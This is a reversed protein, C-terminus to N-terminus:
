KEMVMTAWGRSRRSAVLRLNRYAARLGPVERALIGGMVLRGGPALRPTLEPAIAILVSSLINAAILDFRGGIKELPTSSFRIRGCRNFALNERANRLANPDTDIAMVEGVGMAAMAFALIGSGTGVDLARAVRSGGCLIDELARLTGATSPHHGTGFGFGPQVVVRFRGPDRADSWPPVVLIKRGIRLPKFRRQWMTAWGPDVIARPARSRGDPSLMGAKRMASRLESARAPHLRSFYAELTVVKPARRGPRDMEAVACGMAGSAVLFGAAEDAMVAPVSFRAMVYSLRQASAM